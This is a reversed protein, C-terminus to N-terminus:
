LRPKAILSRVNRSLASLLSFNAPDILQLCVIIGQAVENVDSDLFEGAKSDDGELLWSLAHCLDEESLAGIVDGVTKIDAVKGLFRSAGAIKRITPPHALYIKGGLPVVEVDLGLLASSVM